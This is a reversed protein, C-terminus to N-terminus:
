FLCLLVLGFFCLVGVGLLILLCLRGRLCVRIIERTASIAVTVVRFVRWVGGGSRVDM